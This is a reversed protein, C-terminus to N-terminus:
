LYQFHSKTVKPWLWPLQKGMELSQALSLYGAAYKVACIHSFLYRTNRLISNSFPKEKGEKLNLVCVHIIIMLLSNSVVCGWVLALAGYISINYVAVYTPLVIIHVFSCNVSTNWNNISCLMSEIVWEDHVIQWPPWPYPEDWRNLLMIACTNANHM